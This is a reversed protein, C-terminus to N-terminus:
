EGEFECLSFVKLGRKELRKRGGVDPLDLRESGNLAIKRCVLLM